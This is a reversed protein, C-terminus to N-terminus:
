LFCFPSIGALAPHPGPAWPQLSRHLKRAATDWLQTEALRHLMGDQSQRRHGGGECHDRIRGSKSRALTPLERYCQEGRETALLCLSSKCLTLNGAGVPVKLDLQLPELM